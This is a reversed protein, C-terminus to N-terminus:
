RSGTAPAKVEKIHAKMASAVSADLAGFRYAASFSRGPEVCVAQRERCIATRGSPPATAPLALGLADQDGDRVIWRVSYPLEDVKHSVLDATGDPHCQLAHAWGETDAAQDLVLVVEPDVSQGDALLRHDTVSCRNGDSLAKVGTSDELVTDVLIAGDRPRFNIHALYMLELPKSSLNRVVIGIDLISSDPRIRISLTACYDHSFAETQRFESFLELSPGDNDVSTRIWSSHGEAHPLEGHLPHSDEPGPHGMATLGCHILLAGYNKLYERSEAPEPFMSKMALPRGLFTAEWIQQGRFPLVTLEGKANVIRLAEVGSAFRFGSVSIGAFELIKAPQYLFQGRNLQFVAPASM